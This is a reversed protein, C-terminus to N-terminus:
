IYRYKWKGNQEAKYAQQVFQTFNVGRSKLEVRMSEPISAIRSTMPETYVKPRGM